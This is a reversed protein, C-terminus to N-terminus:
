KPEKNESTAEFCVTKQLKHWQVDAEDLDGAKIVIFDMIEM